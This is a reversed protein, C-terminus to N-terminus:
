HVTNFSAWVQGSGLGPPRKRVRAFASNLVSTHCVHGKATGESLGLAVAIQRHTQGLALLDAVEEERGTLSSLDRRVMAPSWLSVHEALCRRCPIPVVVTGRVLQHPQRARELSVCPWWATRDAGGGHEAQGHNYSPSDARHVTAGPPGRESQVWFPPPTTEM